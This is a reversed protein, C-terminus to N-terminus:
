SAGQRMRVIWRAVIPTGAFTGFIAAVVVLVASLWDSVTVM